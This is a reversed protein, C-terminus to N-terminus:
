FNRGSSLLCPCFRLLTLYAEAFSPQAEKLQLHCVEHFPLTRVWSRLSVLRPANIVAGSAWYISKQLFDHKAKSDRLTLSCYWALNMLTCFLLCPMKLHCPTLTLSLLGKLSESIDSPLSFLWHSEAFIVGTHRAFKVGIRDVGKWPKKGGRGGKDWRDTGRKDEKDGLSKLPHVFRSTVVFPLPRMRSTLACLGRM